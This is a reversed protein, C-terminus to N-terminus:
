SVSRVGRTALGSRELPVAEPKAKGKTSPKAKSTQQQKQDTESGIASGVRPELSALKHQDHREKGFPPWRLRAQRHADSAKNPRGWRACDLAYGNPVEGLNDKSSGQEVQIM